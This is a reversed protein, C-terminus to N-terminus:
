KKGSKKPKPASKDVKQIDKVANEVVHLRKSLDTMSNIIERFSNDLSGIALNAMKMDNMLSEVAQKFQSDGM